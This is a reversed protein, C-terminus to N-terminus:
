GRVKIKKKERKKAEREEKNNQKNFLGFQKSYRMNSIKFSMRRSNLMNKEITLQGSSM